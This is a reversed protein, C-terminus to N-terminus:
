WLTTVGLARLAVWGKPDGELCDAVYMIVECMRRAPNVTCEPQIRRIWDRLLFVMRRHNDSSVHYGSEALVAGAREIGNLLEGVFGICALADLADNTAIHPQLAFAKDRLITALAKVQEKTM